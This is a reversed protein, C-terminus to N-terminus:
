HEPMDTCGHFLLAADSVQRDKRGVISEHATVNNGSNADIKGAVSVVPVNEVVAKEAALAQEFYGVPVPTVANHRKEYEVM